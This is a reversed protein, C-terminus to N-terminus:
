MRDCPLRSTLREVLSVTEPMLDPRLTALPKFDHRHHATIIQARTGAQFPLRGSLCEYLTIGLSYFDSAPSISCDDFREPAMYHITGFNSGDSSAGLRTAAGFDILVPGSTGLIINAPCIDNHLWGCDHIHNLVDLMYSYLTLAEEDDLREMAIRQELTSGEVWALALDHGEAYAVQPVRLHSCERLAIAELSGEAVRKIFLKPSANENDSPKVPM